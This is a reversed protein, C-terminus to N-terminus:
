SMKYKIIEIHRENDMGIIRKKFAISKFLKQFIGTAEDFAQAVGLAFETTSGGGNM